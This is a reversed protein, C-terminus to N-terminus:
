KTEEFLPLVGLSVAKPSLWLYEMASSNGNTTTSKSLVTWDRYLEAYLDSRYGSLIVAGQLHHLVEALQRHDDDTMEVSYRKRGGDSRTKYVYPPDVYFLTRPTDYDQLVQVAPLAEIQAQKLRAAAMHLGKLRAWENTISSGRKWNKMHRWGTRRGSFSGFSQYCCVYFRRARELEDECPEYALEYEERSFPTLDIERVLDETRTRLVRFFNVLDGNLDNLVEIKSPEKRFFISAGGCFPECYCDHAPFHSIIWDALRWKGGTYRLPPPDTLKMAM